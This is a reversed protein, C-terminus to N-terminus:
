LPLEFRVYPVQCLTGSLRLEPKHTSVVQHGRSLRLVVAGADDTTVLSGAAAVAPWRTMPTGVVTEPGAAGAPQDM